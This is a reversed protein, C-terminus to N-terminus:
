RGEQTDNGLDSLLVAEQWEKQKLFLVSPYYLKLIDSCATVGVLNLM